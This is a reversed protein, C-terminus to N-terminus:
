LAGGLSVTLFIGGIATFAALFVSSAFPHAKVHPLTTLIGCLCIIFGIIPM